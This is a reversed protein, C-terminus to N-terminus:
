LLGRDKLVQTLTIFDIPQQKNWLDVLVAYITAHAPIHFHKEGIQEVCEGIVEAPSILMSGLVGQEADASHPLTRHIDPLYSGSKQSYGGAKQTFGSAAKPREPNIPRSESPKQVAEPSGEIPM